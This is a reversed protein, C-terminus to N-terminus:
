RTRFGLSPPLTADLEEVQLTKKSTKHIGGHLSQGLSLDQYSTAVSDKACELIM